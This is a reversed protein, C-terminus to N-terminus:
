CPVGCANVPRVPSKVGKGPKAATCLTGGAAGSCKSRCCRPTMGTLHEAPDNRLGAAQISWFIGLLASLLFSFDFSEFIGGWVATVSSFFIWLICIFFISRFQPYGELDLASM